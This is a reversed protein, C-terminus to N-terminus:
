DSYGLVLHGIVDSNGNGGANLQTSYVTSTGQFEIKVIENINFFPTGSAVAVWERASVSAYGTQGGACTNSTFFQVTNTRTAVANNSLVQWDIRIDASKADSPLTPILTRITCGVADAWVTATSTVTTNKCYNPGTRTYGAACAKTSSLTGSFGGTTGSVAGGSYSAGSVAGSFTGTPGVVGGTATLTGADSLRLLMTTEANNWFELNGNYACWSKAPTVAGNGLFRACAGFGSTNNVLLLNQLATSTISLSSVALASGGTNADTHTHPPTGPTIGMGAQTAAAWSVLLLLLIYKRM